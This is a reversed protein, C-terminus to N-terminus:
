LTEQDLNKLWDGYEYWRSSPLFFTNTV